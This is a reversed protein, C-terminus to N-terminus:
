LTSVGGRDGSNQPRGGELRQWITLNARYGRHLFRRRMWEASGLGREEGKHFGGIEAEDLM